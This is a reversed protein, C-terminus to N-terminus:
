LLSEGQLVEEMFTASEDPTETTSAPRRTGPASSRGPCTAGTRRCAHAARGARPEGPVARAAERRLARGPARVRLGGPELAHQRDARRQDGPERPTTLCDIANMAADQHESFDSVGLGIGGYPPAPSRARSPRPTRRSASTTTSGSRATTTGSSRGTSWSPATTPASPRPRPARTPCRCTPRPPRRLQGAGRRRQGRGPRGRLQHHHHRGRGQETNTAIEGGAGSVLANVWVSYGEYKNAQVAM